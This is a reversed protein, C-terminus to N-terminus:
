RFVCCLETGELTSLLVTFDWVLGTMSVSPFTKVVSFLSLLSCGAESCVVGHSKSKKKKKLYFRCAVGPDSHFYLRIPM